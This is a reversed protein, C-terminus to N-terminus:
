QRRIEVILKRGSDEPDPITVFEVTEGKPIASLLGLKTSNGVVRAQPHLRYLRDDIWVVRYAGHFGHFAGSRSAVEAEGTQVGGRTVPPGAQLGGQAVVPPGASVGFQAALLPSSLGIVGGAFLLSLALLQGFRMHAELRTLTSVLGPRVSPGTAAVVSGKPEWPPM